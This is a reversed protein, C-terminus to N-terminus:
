PLLPGESTLLEKLTKMEEDDFGSQGLALLLAQSLHDWGSFGKAMFDREVSDHCKRCLTVAPVPHEESIVGSTVVHLLDLNTEQVGCRDCAFRYAYNGPSTPVYLIAM